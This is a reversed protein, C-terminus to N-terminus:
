PLLRSSRAPGRRAKRKLDAVQEEVGVEVEEEDEQVGEQVGVMVQVMGLPRNLFKIFSIRIYACFNMSLPLSKLRSSAMLVLIM